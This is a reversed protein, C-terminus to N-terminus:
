AARMDSRGPCPIGSHSVTTAGTSRSLVARSRSIRPGDRTAGGDRQSALCPACAAQSSAWCAGGSRCSSHSGRSWSATARPSALGAPRSTGSPGRASAGPRAAPGRFGTGPVPITDQLQPCHAIGGAQVLPPGRQAQFWLRRVPRAQQRGLPQGALVGIVLRGSAALLRSHHDIRDDDYCARTGEELGTWIAEPLLDPVAPMETVFGRWGALTTLQLHEYEGAPDGASSEMTKLGKLPAAAKLLGSIGKASRANRGAAYVAVVFEGYLGGPDACQPPSGQTAAMAAPVLKKM